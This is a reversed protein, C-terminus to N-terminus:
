AVQTTRDGMPGIWTQGQELCQKVKTGDGLRQMTLEPNIRRKLVCWRREKIEDKLTVIM